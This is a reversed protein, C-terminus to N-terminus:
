RAYPELTLPTATAGFQTSYEVKYAVVGNTVTADVGLNFWGGTNKVFNYHDDGLIDSVHVLAACVFELSSDISRGEEARNFVGLNDDDLAVELTSSATYDASGFLNQGDAIAYIFTQAYEEPYLMVTTNNGAPLVDDNVFSGDAADVRIARFSYVGRIPTIVVHAEAVVNATNGAGDPVGEIALFGEVRRTPAVINGRDGPGGDSFIPRVEDYGDIIFTDMDNKSTEVYGDYHKCGDPNDINQTLDDKHYYVIHIREGGVAVYSVATFMGRTSSFYPIVVQNQQPIAQTASPAALIALGLLAGIGARKM